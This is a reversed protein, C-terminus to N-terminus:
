GPPSNPSGASVSAATTVRRVAPTDRGTGPGPLRTIPLALAPRRTVPLGLAPRRRGPPRIGPLGHVPLGHVPQDHAFLGRAPLRPVCPGPQALGPVASAGSGALQGAPGGAHRRTSDLAAFLSTARNMAAPATM